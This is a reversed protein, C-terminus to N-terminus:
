ISWDWAQKPSLGVWAWLIEEYDLDRFVGILDSVMMMAMPTLYIM